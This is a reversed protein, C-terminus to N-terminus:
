NSLLFSVENKLKPSTLFASVDPDTSYDTESDPQLDPRQGSMSSKKPAVDASAAKRPGGLFAAVDPDTEYGM